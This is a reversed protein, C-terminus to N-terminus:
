GRPHGRRVHAVQRAGAATASTYSVTSGQRKMHEMYKKFQESDAGKLSGQREMQKDSNMKVKSTTTLLTLGETLMKFTCHAANQCSTPPRAVLEIMCNVNKCESLEGTAPKEQGASACGGAGEDVDRRYDM